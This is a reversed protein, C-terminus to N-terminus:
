VDGRRRAQLLAHNLIATHDDEDVVVALKNWARPAVVRDAFVQIDFNERYITPLPDTPAYMKKGGDSGRIIAILQRSEDYDDVEMLEVLPTQPPGSTLFVISYKRDRGFVKQRKADGIAMHVPGSPTPVAFVRYRGYADIENSPWKFSQAELERVFEWKAPLEGASVSPTGAAQQYATDAAAPTIAPSFGAAHLTTLLSGLQPDPVDRILVDFPMM